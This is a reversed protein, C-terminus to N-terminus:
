KFQLCAVRGDLVTVLLENEGVPQIANILANSIKYKWAVQHTTKDIAVITGSTTPVFILKRNETIPSPAIEYGLGAECEWVLSQDEASTSFALFNGEKM